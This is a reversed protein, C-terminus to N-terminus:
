GLGPQQPSKPSDVLLHFIERWTKRDSERPFLLFIFVHNVCTHNELHLGHVSLVWIVQFKTLVSARLSERQLRSAWVRCKVLGGSMGKGVLAKFADRYPPNKTWLNLHRHEMNSYKPQAGPKSEQSRIADQVRAEPRPQSVVTPKKPTFWSM